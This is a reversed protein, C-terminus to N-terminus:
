HKNVNKNLGSLIADVHHQWTYHNLVKQRANEGLIASVDPHEVLFRIGCILDAVNGPTTLVAVMDDGITSNNKITANIKLGPSLIDGIQELESAVIGKGMAMYEFLKTPSGFFRSGDENPVHPSVLVDSAALYLPAKAQEVLGTLTVYRHAIGNDLEKKVDPMKLGDGVLMFHVNNEELWNAENESLYRIAKALIEAGHWQGFTGVFTVIKANQAINYKKRLNVTEEYGIRKQSYIEPDVCNPYVVIRGPDIGRELLEDKLVDSVAVILHAHRLLADEASVALEHYRLPKGWNKAVWAESGNYEAILPVKYYRSLVVGAYNALSVRQYIFAPKNISHTREIQKVYTEQFRYYNLETPVGFTEPLSIPYFKVDGNLMVPEEAGAFTIKYGSKELGNVIGAIHGVSGGAKVGFWLNTKM